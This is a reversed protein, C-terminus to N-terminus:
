NKCTYYYSLVAGASIPKKTRKLSLIQCRTAVIIVIKRFDVSCVEHLKFLPLDRCVNNGFGPHTPKQVSMFFRLLVGKKRSVYNYALRTSTIPPATQRDTQGDTVNTSQM